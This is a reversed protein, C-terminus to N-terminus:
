RILVMKKSEAFSETELKYFYIGSPMDKGNMDTGYWIFERVGRSLPGEIFFFIEEGLSNYIRITYISPELIEYKIKTVPNFPNPYNQYLKATNPVISHNNSIGISNDATYKFIRSGAAYGMTDGYFRIRNIHPNLYGFSVPSLNMGGNTTQLVVDYGLWGIADNVFGMGQQYTSASLQFWNIGGNTTKFFFYPSSGQVSVYGVNRSPFSIKWGWCTDRTTIIRQVWNNGGNSTFLIVAKRTLLNGLGGTVFGSDPTFFKCDILSSAYSNLNFSQWSNGGDTSKILVADDSYEGCGYITTSNVVSMGCIGRPVPSPINDIRNWNVGGNTTRYVPASPNLTGILGNLSDLFALSRSFDGGPLLGLNIWNLGGDTTKYISNTATWGTKTNIFSLDNFRGSQPYPSNPLLKWTPQSYEKLPLLLILLLAILAKKYM